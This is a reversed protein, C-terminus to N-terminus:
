MVSMRALLRAKFDRPFNRLSFREYPIRMREAAYISDSFIAGNGFFVETGDLAAATANVKVALVFGEPLMFARELRLPTLDSNQANAMIQDLTNSFISTALNQGAPAECRVELVKSRAAVAANLRSCYFIQVNKTGAAPATGFTITMTAWAITWDENLTGDVFAVIQNEMDAAATEAAGLDACQIADSTLVFDTETGTGDFENVEQVFISMNMRSSLAYVMGKPVKFEAISSMQDLANSSRTFDALELYRM